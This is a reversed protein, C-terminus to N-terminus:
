RDYFGANKLMQRAETADDDSLRDYRMIMEIAACANFLRVTTAAREAASLLPARVRAGRATPYGYLEVDINRVTTAFCLYNSALTGPTYRAKPKTRAM